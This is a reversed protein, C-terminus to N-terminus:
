KVSFSSRTIIDSWLSSIAIKNHIYCFPVWDDFASSWYTLNSFAKAATYRRKFIM